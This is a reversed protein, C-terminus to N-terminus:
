KIHDATQRRKDYVRSQAMHLSNNITHNAQLCQKIEPSALLALIPLPSPVPSSSSSVFPFFFWFFRPMNGLTAVLMKLAHNNWCKVTLTTIWPFTQMDGLPLQQVHTINTVTHLDTNRCREPDHTPLLKRPWHRNKKNRQCQERPQVEFHVTAGVNGTKIRNIGTKKVGRWCDESLTCCSMQLLGTNNSQCTLQVNERTEM